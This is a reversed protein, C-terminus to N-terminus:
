PSPKGLKLSNKNPQRGREFVVMASYIHMSVTDQTFETPPLWGDTWNANIEDILDKCLEIFTGPRRFGGGYDESYATNLAEVVYVGNHAMKPYLYRFSETVDAMIHSGDDIVIDPPGFESILDALFATDAQNGIRIKIQEDELTACEPLIDISVIIALPGFYRKWMRATGGAGTGIEFLMVPRDVFPRFHREYAAFFHVNKHIPLDANDLFYQYLNM